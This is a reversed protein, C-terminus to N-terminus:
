KSEINVNLEKLITLMSELGDEKARTMAKAGFEGNIRAGLRIYKRVLDDREWAVASAVIPTFGGNIDIRRELLFEVLDWKGKAAAMTIESGELERGHDLFIRVVATHGRRVAMWYGSYSTDLTNHPIDQELLYKVLDTWGYCGAYHFLGRLANAGLDPYDTAERIRMLMQFTEVYPTQMARELEEWGRSPSGDRLELSDKTWPGPLLKRVINPPAKECIYKMDTGCLNKPEEQLLFATAHQHGAIAALELPTPFISDHAKEANKNGHLESLISLKNLYAAACKLDYEYNSSDCDESPQCISAVTWSGGSAQSVGEILLKVYSTSKEERVSEDDSLALRAAIRPINAWRNTVPLNTHLLRHIIYGSGVGGMSKLAIHCDELLRYGNIVRIM